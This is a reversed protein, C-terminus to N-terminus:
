GSGVVHFFIKPVDHMYVEFSTELFNSLVNFMNRCKYLDLNEFIIQKVQLLKLLFEWLYTTSGERSKRKLPVGDPGIKTSRPKKKKLKLSHQYSVFSSPHHYPPYPSEERSPSPASTMRTMGSALIPSTFASSLLSTLPNTTSTTPSQLSHRDSFTSPLNSRGYSSLM